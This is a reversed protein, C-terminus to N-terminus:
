NRSLVSSKREPTLTAFETPSLVLRREQSTESQVVPVSVAIPSGGEGDGTSVGVLRGAADFLIASTTAPLRLDTALTCIAGDGRRAIIRGETTTVDASTQSVAAYIPEGAAL